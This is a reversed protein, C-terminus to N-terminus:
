SLYVAETEPIKLEAALDEPGVAVLPSIEIVVAKEPIKIGRQKLWRRYQDNM